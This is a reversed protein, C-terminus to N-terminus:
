QFFDSIKSFMKSSKSGGKLFKGAVGRCLALKAGKLAGIGTVECRSKNPKLDSFFSFPDFVKMVEILSEKDKLFFHQTMLM